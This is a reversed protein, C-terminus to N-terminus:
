NSQKRFKWFIKGIILLVAYFMKYVNSKLTQSKWSNEELAVNDVTEGPGQPKVGTIRSRERGGM